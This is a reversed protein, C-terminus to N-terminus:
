TGPELRVAPAIVWTYLAGEGPLTGAGTVSASAIEIRGSPCRAVVDAMSAGLSGTRGCAGRAESLMPVPGTFAHAIGGGPASRHEARFVVKMRVDRALEAFCFMPGHATLGALAVPGQQWRRYVEDYWFRTMDGEIPHVRYGLAASREAFAVSEPFRTDYVVAFLLMAPPAGEIGAAEAARAMIPWASATVGIQLFQRRTTL